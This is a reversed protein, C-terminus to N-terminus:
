ALLDDEDSKTVIERIKAARNNRLAQGSGGVGNIYAGLSLTKNLQTLSSTLTARSTLSPNQVPEGGRGFTMMGNEVIHENAKDLLYYTTALHTALVIHNPMWTSIEKSAIILRFYYMENDNLKRTHKIDMSNGQIAGMMGDITTLARRNARPM